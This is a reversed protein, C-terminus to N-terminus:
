RGALGRRPFLARNIRAYGAPDPLRRPINNFSGNSILHALKEAARSVKLDRGGVRRERVLVARAPKRAHAHEGGPQSDDSKKRRRGTVGADVSVVVLDDDLTGLPTETTARPRGKICSTGSGRRRSGERWRAYGGVAENRQADSLTGVHPHSPGGRKKRALKNLRWPLSM